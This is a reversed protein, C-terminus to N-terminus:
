IWASSAVSAWRTCRKVPPATGAGADLVRAMDHRTTHRALVEATLRHGFFGVKEHDADYSRAWDADLRQLDERTRAEYARKWIADLRTDTGEDVPTDPSQSM